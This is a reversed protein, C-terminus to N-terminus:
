FSFLFFSFVVCYVRSIADERCMLKRREAWTQAGGDGGGDSVEVSQALTMGRAGAREREMSNKGEENSRERKRERGGDSFRRHQLMEGSNIGDGMDVM